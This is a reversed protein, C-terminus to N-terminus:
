GQGNRAAGTGTEEIESVKRGSTRRRRWAALGVVTAATLLTSTAGWLAAPSRYEFVVQHRGAQLPVARFLANARLVVTQEGDVFARWGANFAELVVLYGPATTDVTVALANSRRWLVRATGRFDPSAEVATVRDRTALVVERAAM